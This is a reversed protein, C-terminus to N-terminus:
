PSCFRIQLNEKSASDQKKLARCNNSLLRSRGSSWACGNLPLSKPPPILSVPSFKLAPRPNNPTL